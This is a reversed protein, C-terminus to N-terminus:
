RLAPIGDRTRGLGLIATFRGRIPALGTEDSTLAQKGATQPSAFAISNPFWRIGTLFMFNKM